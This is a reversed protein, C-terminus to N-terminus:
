KLNNELNIIVTECFKIQEDIENFMKSELDKSLSVEDYLEKIQELVRINNRYESISKQIESM